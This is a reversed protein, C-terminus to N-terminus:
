LEIDFFAFLERIIPTIRKRRGALLQFISARSYNGHQAENELCFKDVGGFANLAQKLRALKEPGIAGGKGQASTAGAKANVQALFGANGSRRAFQKQLEYRDMGSLRAFQSLSGFKRKIRAKIQNANM